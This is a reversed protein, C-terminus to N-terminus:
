VKEFDKKYNIKGSKDWVNIWLDKIKFENLMNKWLSENRDVMVAFLSVSEAKHKKYFDILKPM